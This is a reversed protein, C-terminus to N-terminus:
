IRVRLAAPEVSPCCAPLFRPFPFGSSSVVIANFPVGDISATMTNRTSSVFSMTVSASAARGQYTATITVTGSAVATVLGASSVTALGNNSSVWAAAATVNQTTGDSFTATATLQSTQGVGSLNTTGSLVVSSVTAQPTPSPSPASPSSAPASSSSCSWSVGLAAVIAVLRALTM